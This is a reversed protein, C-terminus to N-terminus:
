GIENAVRAVIALNREADVQTVDARTHGLLVQTSTATQQTKRGASLWRAILQDHAAKAEPALSAWTTTADM